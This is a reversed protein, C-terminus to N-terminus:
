IVGPGLRAAETQTVLHVLREELGALTHQSEQVASFAARLESATVEDGIDLRRVIAYLSGQSHSIRNRCDTLTEWLEDPVDLTNSEPWAEPQGALASAAEFRRTVLTRVATSFDIASVTVHRQRALARRARAVLKGFETDYRLTSRYPFRSPKPRRKSKATVVPSVGEILAHM